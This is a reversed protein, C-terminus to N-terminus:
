KKRMAWERGPKDVRFSELNGQDQLTVYATRGDKGGFCINTPRKGVLPIEQIVKGSPAVKAITGKGFRTLYLNGDADCRMGDMGFDPFEILLHKNSIKGDASLDYVWVKRQNSENVYLRKDDPSVEVGNTTGMNEELLTVKGDTDIRWLNGTNNKWSPDSAYLRDKGDIAIDNPQNMRPEHAFVSLNKTGAAVKLINHKPYDAIFMDGKKSFRIGNGISGEPLEIFVSADGTPTVQGITGQKGFNVAYVMGAKDVAPGEVGSTFGNVPTFVTSKFLEEATNPMASILLLGAGTLSAVVALSLTKFPM